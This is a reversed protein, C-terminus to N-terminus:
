VGKQFTVGWREQLDETAVLLNSYPRGLTKKEGPQLVGAKEAQGILFPTGVKPDNRHGKEPCAGVPRDTRQQPSWMQICYELHPRVLVSCLPPIM